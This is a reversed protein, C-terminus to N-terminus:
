NLVNDNFMIVFCFKDGCIMKENVKLFMEVTGVRHKHWINTKLRQTFIKDLDNKLM